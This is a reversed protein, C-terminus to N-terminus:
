RVTLQTKVTQTLGPPLRMEAVSPSTGFSLSSLAHQPAYGISTAYNTTGSKVDSVRGGNNYTYTVVRNSPYTVSTLGDLGNYSYTPFAYSANLSTTGSISQTSSGIREVADYTYSTQYTYAGAITDSVSCLRGFGNTCGGYTYTVAPTSSDTYSKGTPQSVSNYTTTTTNRPDAKTHLNGNFDYTYDISGSEPNTANSLRRLSTYTFSRSASSQTVTKLENLEYTYSTTLNLYPPNGTGSPDEVVSTLRGLGDSAM